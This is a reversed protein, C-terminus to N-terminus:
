SLCLGTSIKPLLMQEWLQKPEMQTLVQSLDVAFGQEAFRKFETQWDPARFCAFKNLCAMREDWGPKWPRRFASGSFHQRVDTTDIGLYRLGNIALFPLTEGPVVAGTKLVSFTFYSWTDNDGLLYIPLNFELELRHALRRSQARPIGCGTMLIIRNEILDTSQALRDFESKQDVVVMCQADCSAIQLADQEVWSPISVPIPHALVERNDERLKIRIPGALFGRSEYYAQEHQLVQSIASLEWGPFDETDHGDIAIWYPVGTHGLQDAIAPDFM